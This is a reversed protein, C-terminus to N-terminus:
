NLVTRVGEVRGSKGRVVQKPASLVELIAATQRNQEQAVAAMAEALVRLAEM